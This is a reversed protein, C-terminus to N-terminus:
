EGAELYNKGFIERFVNISWGYASMAAEQARKKLWRYKDPNKHVGGLHCDEHCLLVWLGYSKSKQRNAGGFIEHRDLKRDCRGCIYCSEDTQLISPIYDSRSAAKM